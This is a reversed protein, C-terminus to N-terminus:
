NNLQKLVEVFDFLTKKDVTLPPKIRLTNNYGIGVIYGKEDKLKEVLEPVNINDEFRIGIFLGTGTIKNINKVELLIEKLYNGMEEAHNIYNKTEIQELVVKAVSCAVTNGGFTNFYTNPLYKELEQKFICAGMPYGNAIPKGCTIIDPIIGAKEFAFFTGGSRGFGTQVEDSILVQTNNRIHQIVEYPVDYNGGVGQITELIFVNTNDLDHKKEPSYFKINLFNNKDVIYGKSDIHSVQNCLWTTGHYSRELSGIFGNHLKLYNIGIQLALDNSESGSNTFIIKYGKPIYKQLHKAYDTLSNNLYRTNINISSYANKVAELVELNSHGIHSVNNYLDIYQKNTDTYYYHLKGNKILIPNKFSHYLCKPFLESRNYIIKNIIDQKEM